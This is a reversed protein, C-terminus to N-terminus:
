EDEGDQAELKRNIEPVIPARILPAVDVPLLEAEAHMHIPEFFTGPLSSKWPDQLHRLLGYPVRIFMSVLTPDDPDVEIRMEGHDGKGDLAGPTANVGAVVRGGLTDDPDSLLYQNRATGPLACAKLDGLAYKLHMMGTGQHYKVPQNFKVGTITFEIATGPDIGAFFARQNEVKTVGLRIVAGKPHGAGTEIRTGGLAVYCKVNKGISEGGTPATYPMTGTFSLEQNHATWRVEVSPTHTDDVLLLTPRTKKSTQAQEDLHPQDTHSLALTPQAPDSQVLVPQVLVMNETKSEPGNALGQTGLIGITFWVVLLQPHKMGM